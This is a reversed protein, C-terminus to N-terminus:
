YPSVSSLKSNISRGRYTPTLAHCNPCLLRLNELRNDLHNGNIHDLELSIPKGLWKMFKCSSCRPVFIKEVILRKKLKHSSIRIENNLYKEIPKRAGIKKGKNWLQFTFHSTDLNFYSIAKKIVLYNGGCPAVSLSKLTQAFSFSEKVAKRLQKETYKRLKM